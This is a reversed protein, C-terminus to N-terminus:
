RRVAEESGCQPCLIPIFNPDAQFVFGCICCEYYVKSQDIKDGM